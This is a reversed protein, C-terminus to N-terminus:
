RSTLEARDHPDYDRGERRKKQRVLGDLDGPQIPTEVPFAFTIALADLRNPSRRIIEKMDEKPIFKYKGDLTAVTEQALLEEYLDKDDEPISGGAQLWERVLVHMEARKNVCDLRGSKENFWVLQWNRNMTRGASVIGTGYGGDIFVAKANYETEFRAIINAMYIDNDNKAYTALIRFNLGQRMGIVFEDEGTWSPDVSIIVPAFNFQEPKLIVRQAKEVLETSYFQHSSSSPFMGRVRVRFFDSDEGYQEAWRDFLKKNTGEVTRSDIHAHDWYKSDRRFCERFRGVNRTPNGFVLWIIETNADTLAGEAVEWIADDIASGEDMVLIIRKRENHLGAFAESNHKSWPTFDARWTLEHDGGHAHISTREYGFWHSSISMKCWKQVEPVTKTRLQGETNATIVIRTDVCTDLGWKVLMGMLASKGIGHGSARVLLMADYRTAPNSLHLAIRSMVDVQWKRPGPAHVLPGNPEGWPFAFLAYGLPNWTYKAIEDILQEEHHQM